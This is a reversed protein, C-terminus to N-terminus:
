YLFHDNSFLNWVKDEGSKFLGREQLIHLHGRSTLLETVPFTGYKYDSHYKLHYTDCLPFEFM